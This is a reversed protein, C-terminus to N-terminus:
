RRASLLEDMYGQFRANFMPWSFTNHYRQYGAEGLRQCLADDKLLTLAAEAIAEASQEDILIGAEGDVVVERASGNKLAICPKKYTMAELYVLGFGDGTSPMVLARCRNYLADRTAESIFGTFIVNEAVNLSVAKEQLRTMDDGKGAIVLQARPCQRLIIPMAEILQDHGKHQQSAAMRGVILLFDKGVQELLALDVEDTPAREELSLHLIKADPFDPNFHRARDLTFESISLVLQADNLMRKRLGTMKKWADIGYFILASPHQWDSPILAYARSIGIHSLIFVSDPRTLHWRYMALGLGVKNGSFFVANPDTLHPHPAGLDLIRYPIDTKESYDALSRNILRSVLAVGGADYSSGTSVHVIM